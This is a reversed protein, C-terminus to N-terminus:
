PRQLQSLLDDHLGMHFREEIAVPDRTLSLEIGQNTFEGGNFWAEDHYLSPAVSAQLLLDQILKQDLTM